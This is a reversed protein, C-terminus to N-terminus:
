VQVDIASETSKGWVINCRGGISDELNGISGLWCQVTASFFVNDPLNDPLNDSLNDPLNDPLNPGTRRIDGDRGYVVISHTHENSLYIWLRTRESM